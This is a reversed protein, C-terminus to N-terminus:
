HGIIYKSYLTLYISYKESNTGQMLKWKDCGPEGFCVILRCSDTVQPRQVAPSSEPAKGGHLKADLAQLTSLYSEIKPDAVNHVTLPEAGWGISSLPDRDSFGPPMADLQTTELEQKKFWALWEPLVDRTLERRDAEGTSIVICPSSLSITAEMIGYRHLSEKLQFMVVVSNQDARSQAASNFHSLSSVHKKFDLAISGLRPSSFILGREFVWLQGKVSPIESLGTLMRVGLVPDTKMLAGMTYHRNRPNSSLRSILNSMNETDEEQGEALWGCLPEIQETLMLTDHSKSPPDFFTEGFVVSGLDVPTQDLSCIHRLVLKLYKVHRSGLAADGPNGALDRGSLELELNAGVDYNRFWDLQLEQIWTVALAALAAQKTAQGQCFARVLKKHVHVVACYASMLCRAYASRGGRELKNNDEQTEVGDWDFTLM